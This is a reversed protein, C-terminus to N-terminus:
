PTELDSLEPYAEYIPDLVRVQTEGVLVGVARHLAQFEEPEYGEKGIELLELLAGIAKLANAKAAIASSKNM